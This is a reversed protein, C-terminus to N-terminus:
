TLEEVHRSLEAFAHILASLGIASIDISRSSWLINGM